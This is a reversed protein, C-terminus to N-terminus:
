CVPIRVNKNMLLIKMRSTYAETRGMRISFLPELPSGPMNKGRVYYGDINVKEDIHTNIDPHFRGAQMSREKSNPFPYWCSSFSLCGIIYFVIKM